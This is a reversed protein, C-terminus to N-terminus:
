SYSSAIVWVLVLAVPTDSDVLQPTSKLVRLKVEASAADVIVADVVAAELEALVIMGGGKCREGHKLSAEGHLSVGVPRNWKGGHAEATATGTTVHGTGTVLIAAGCATCSSCSDEGAVARQVTWASCIWPESFLTSDPVKKM